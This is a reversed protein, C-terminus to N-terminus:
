AVRLRFTKNKEQEEQEKKKPQNISTKLTGKLM